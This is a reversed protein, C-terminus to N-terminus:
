QQNPQQQQYQQQEHQQQQNMQLQFITNQIQNKAIMRNYNNLEKIEAAVLLGFIDCDDKKEKPTAIVKEMKRLFQLEMRDLDPKEKQSKARGTVESISRDM